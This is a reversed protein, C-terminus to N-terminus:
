AQRHLAIINEVHPSHPFLDVPQVHEITYQPLLQAVDRAQTAPNCSVYVIRKPAACLVSQIVEPHMGARPPDVVMVDAPITENHISRRVDGAYFTVNQIGNKAANQRANEVAAETIEFGIVHNAKHAIGLAISGVGSYLDWVREQGTLRAANRVETYLLETAKTNVQFFSDPGLEFLLDGLCETLTEKGTQFVIREGYAVQAAHSRASHIFSTIGDFRKTLMSELNRIAGNLRYGKTYDPTTIIQVMCQKGYEPERIVLFRLFGKKKSPHYAPINEKQAWTRVTKVIEVARGSQLSCETIDVVAHSNLRRLGLHLQRRDANFAFEMKNRYFRQKPSPLTPRVSSETIGGIRHLSDHVFQQKWRLQEEYPLEQWICGGCDGAHRCFPPLQTPSPTLVETVEAEAYRKKKKTIEATVTQGPLGKDLFITMGNHRAIAKGGTALTEITLTTPMQKM